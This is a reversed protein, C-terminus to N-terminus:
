IRLPVGRISSVEVSEDTERRIKGKGEVLAYGLLHRKNGHIVLDLFIGNDVGICLFTVTNQVGMSEEGEKDNHVIRGTAILGRFHVVYEKEKDLKRQKVTEIRKYCGPFFEASLWYGRQKMDALQQSPHNDPM